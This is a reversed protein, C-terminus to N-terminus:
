LVKNSIERYVESIKEHNSLIHSFAMVTDELQHLNQQFILKENSMKLFCATVYGIKLVDCVNVFRKVTDCSIFGYSASLCNEAQKIYKSVEAYKMKFFYYKHDNTFPFSNTSRGEKRLRIAETEVQVNCKRGHLHQPVLCTFCFKTRCQTCSLAKSGGEQYIPRSCNQGPCPKTFSDIWDKSLIDDPNSELKTWMKMMDCPLIDHGDCGCRFCFEYGCKCHVTSTVNNFHRILIQCNPAPCRVINENSSVFKEVMLKEFYKQRAPLLLKKMVFDDEIIFNCAACQIVDIETVELIKSNLYQRFCEDCFRHGCGILQSDSLGDSFCLDCINDDKISKHKRKRPNQIKAKEYLATGDENYESSFKKLDWNFYNLFARATTNSLQLTSFSSFDELRSFLFDISVATREHVERTAKKMMRFTEDFSLVEYNKYGEGM